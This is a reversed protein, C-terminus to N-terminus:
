LPDQLRTKDLLGGRILPLSTDDRVKTTAPAPDYSADRCVKAL